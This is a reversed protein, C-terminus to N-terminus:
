PFHVRGNVATDGTYAGHVRGNVTYVATSRTCPQEHMKTCPRTCPGYVATYGTRERGPVNRGYVATYVPRLSSRTCPVRIMYARTGPEYGGHVAAYVPRLCGPVPYVATNPDYVSWTCPGHVATYVTQARGHVRAAFTGREHATFTFVGTYVTCPGHM